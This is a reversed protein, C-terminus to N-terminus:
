VLLGRFFTAHPIPHYMLYSERLRGSIRSFGHLSSAILSVFRSSYFEIANANSNAHTAGSYLYLKIQSDFWREYRAFLSLSHRRCLSDYDYLARFLVFVITIRHARFLHWDNTAHMNRWVERQLWVLGFNLSANTGRYSFLRNQNTLYHRFRRPPEPPSLDYGGMVWLLYYVEVFM